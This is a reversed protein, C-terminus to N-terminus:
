KRSLVIYVFIIFSYAFCLFYSAYLSVYLNFNLFFFSATHACTHTHTWMCRWNINVDNKILSNVYMHIYSLPLLCYHHFLFYCLIFLIKSQKENMTDPSFLFFGFSAMHVFDFTLMEAKCGLASNSQLLNCLELHWTNYNHFLFYDILFEIFEYFAWSM